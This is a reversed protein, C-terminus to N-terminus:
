SASAERADRNPSTSHTGILRDLLMITGIFVFFTPVSILMEMALSDRLPDSLHNRMGARKGGEQALWIVLSSMAYFFVPYVLSGYIAWRKFSVARIVAFTALALLLINPLNLLFAAALLISHSYYHAALDALSLVPKLFPIISVPLRLLPNLLFYGAIGGALGAVLRGFIQGHFKRM